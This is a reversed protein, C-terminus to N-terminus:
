QRRGNHRTELVGLASSSQGVQSAVMNHMSLEISGHQAKMNGRDMIGISAFQPIM